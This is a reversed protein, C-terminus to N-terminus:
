LGPRDERVLVMFFFQAFYKFPWLRGLAFQARNFPAFLPTGALAHLLHSELLLSAGDTHAIRTGGGKALALARPFPFKMHDEFEPNRPKHLTRYAFHAVQFPLSWANPLTVIAVGRPSLMAKINAVVLEPRATHEIVETCLILDFKQATDLEEANQLRFEIAGPQGFTRTATEIMRPVIDIGLVKAFGFDSMMKSYIGTNCGIDLASGREVITGSRVLDRVLLFFLNMRARHLVKTELDNEYDCIRNLEAQLADRDDCAFDVKYFL